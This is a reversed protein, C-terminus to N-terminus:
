RIVGEAIRAMAACLRAALEAVRAERPEMGSMHM